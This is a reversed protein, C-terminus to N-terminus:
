QVRRFGFSTDLAGDGDVAIRIRPFGNAVRGGERRFALTVTHRPDRPVAASSAHLLLKGRPYDFTWVRGYFWEQGLMGTWDNGMDRTQAPPLVFLASDRRGLPHPIGRGSQFTPLAVSRATDTGQVGTVKTTLGLRGVADSALWLGGGTDTFLTLTDGRTTVPYVYFRGAVLRAPLEVPAAQTQAATVRIPASIPVCIALGTLVLAARSM